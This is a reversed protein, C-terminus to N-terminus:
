TKDELSIPKHKQVIKTNIHNQYVTTKTYLQKWSM